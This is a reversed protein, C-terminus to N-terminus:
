NVLTPRAPRPTFDVLELCEPALGFTVEQRWGEADGGVQLPMPREFSVTVKEAHFDVLGDHAFEGSWIRPLNWLVSAVSVDTVVRLQLMGECADAFPFARMGFGYFPVTSAAAMMCPGAYLLEGRAIARGTARGTGDLRYAPRGANVIECYAHGRSALYRPATRLAASLAYGPFGTALGRLATGGLHDKVWGYDNIV